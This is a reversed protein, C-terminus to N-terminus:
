GELEAASVGPLELVPNDPDGYFLRLRDGSWLAHPPPLRSPEDTPPWPVTLTETVFDQVSDLVREAAGVAGELLERGEMLGSVDTGTSLKGDAVVVASDEAVM